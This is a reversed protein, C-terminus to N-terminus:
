SIRNPFYFKRELIDKIKQESGWVKRIDDVDNVLMYLRELALGWAIIREKIGLPELTEPRFIGSNAIEVWTKKKEHWGFVELSPETYPNYTPKFKLKKIGFHSYFEKMFGLLHRLNVNGIIFGEIQYFEALHKWDITENRFVRGISFYKGPIKVCKALYRFTTATTHSRLLLKSAEEPFWEKKYNKEHVEKIKYHWEPIEGYKPEEFYMTDQVERAPHDQPIFMIDMNWFATEVWPGEIEEFGMGILVEKIYNIFEKLQHKSGGYISPVPSEVDYWRFKVDKWKGTTILDKTLKDEFNIDKLESLVQKGKETIKAILIDKKEVKILRRALFEENKINENICKRFLETKNPIESLEKALKLVGNEIKVIGQDKLYKIPALLEKDIEKIPKPLIKVLRDEPLEEELYKKGKETPIIIEVSKKELEVYGKNSLFLL